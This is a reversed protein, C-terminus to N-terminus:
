APLLSRPLSLPLPTGSLSFTLQLNGQNGIDDNIIPEERSVRVQVKGLYHM